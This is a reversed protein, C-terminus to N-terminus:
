FGRRWGDDWCIALQWLEFGKPCADLCDSPLAHGRLPFPLPSRRFVPGETIAADLWRTLACMPCLETTGHPLPVLVPSTHASKGRKLM